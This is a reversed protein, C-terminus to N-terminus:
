RPVRIVGSRHSSLDLILFAVACTPVRLGKKWCGLMSRSVFVVTYVAVASLVARQPQSAHVMVSEM